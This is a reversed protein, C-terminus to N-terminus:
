NEEEVKKLEVISVKNNEHVLILAASTQYDLDTKYEWNLTVEYAKKDTIKNYEYSIIKIRSTTILSVIPLEQDRDGYINNEVYKYLTNKANLLFNSQVAANIFQIGGVDNKNVKNALNYFDAVFLKSVLEAYKEEDVTTETLEINLEEFLDKYLATENEDLTYGYNKIEKLIKVEKVTDTANLLRYGVFCGLGILILFTIAIFVMRKNLKKKKKEM